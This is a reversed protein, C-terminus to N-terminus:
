RHRPAPAGRESAARYRAPTGLGSRSVDARTVAAAARAGVESDAVARLRGQLHEQPRLEGVDDIQDGPAFAAVHHHGVGGARGPAAPDARRRSRPRRPGSVWRRGSGGARRAARRRPAGRASGAWRACSSGRRRGAAPKPRRRDWGCGPDARRGCAAASVPGLAATMEALVAAEVRTLAPRRQDQGAGAHRADPTSGRAARTM